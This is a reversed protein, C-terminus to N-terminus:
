VGSDNRREKGNGDRPTVVCVTNKLRKSVSEADWVYCDPALVLTMMARFQYAADPNAAYLSAHLFAIVEALNIVAKDVGGSVVCREFVGDDDIRFELM